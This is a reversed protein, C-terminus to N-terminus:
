VPITHKNTWVTPGISSCYDIYFATGNCYMRWDGVTDTGITQQFYTRKARDNLIDAKIVVEETETDVGFVVYTNTDDIM